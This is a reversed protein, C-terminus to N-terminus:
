RGIPSGPPVEVSRAPQRQDWPRELFRRIDDAALLRHSREAGNASQDPKTFDRELSRLRGTVQSRVAHSVGAGSALDMLRDLVRREVVRGIEAEYPDKSPLAHWTRLLLTDIVEVLGVAQPDLTTALALRTARQPHLLAALAIDAATEAVALSDFVAGTRRPFREREGRGGFPSPPIVDILRRPLALASPRLCALVQELAMRQRAAPVPRQPVQGDGRVAYTYHYGGILKTAAELQYRHHLYVPVVTEELAAMPTGEPLTNESLRDMAVRRVKLAHGLAEVPDPGNDWLHAYAHATGLSRADQDSAFHMGAALWEHVIAELGAKENVGPAFQTYAYRVSYKDWEGIGVDYADSLDLSRDERILVKPAPYDMVSARGNVSAAFNHAFGLTHGVEHASLQRIRALATEVPETRPDAFGLAGSGPPGAAGCCGGNGPTMGEFILRDQRVRLSGLLVHGKIIEGTRPDRVSSGYSWGRTSRHVWNIVNYRVDLPDAGEPMVEVRFADKFGAAEFAENWWGAGEVLASRVPEPAGRDVYYVIPEKAESLPANPDQKELRHRGIWRVDMDVDLPKAYDKFSPGSSPARPDFSRPRYGDPPLRVFSHRQRVTVADASPAVRRVNSGAGQGTFTLLAELETNDPFAKCGDIWAASRQKDLKWTGGDSKLKRAIGQADRVVFDTADVLVRGDSEAEIKFGYLVSEAFSETVANREAADGSLARFKLNPQVLLLKPGVRRLEILRTGGLQKRDLGVPNSGLGTALSYVYILQEGPTLELWLKGGSGDWWFTVYGESKVFDKTRTAIDPVQAVAGGAVLTLLAIIFTTKM